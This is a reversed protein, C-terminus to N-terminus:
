RPSRLFVVAVRACGYECCFCGHRCVRVLFKVFVVGGRVIEAKFNRDTLKVVKGDGGKGPASGGGPSAAVGSSTSASSTTAGSSSAAAATPGADVAGDAGVSAGRATELLLAGLTVASVAVVAALQQMRRRPKGPQVMGAATRASTWWACSSAGLDVVNM